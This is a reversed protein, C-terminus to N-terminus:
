KKISIVADTLVQFRRVNSPSGLFAAAALTAAHSRPSAGVALRM